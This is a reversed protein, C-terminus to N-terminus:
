TVHQTKKYLKTTEVKIAHYYPDNKLIIEVPMTDRANRKIKYYTVNGLFFTDDRDKKYSYGM